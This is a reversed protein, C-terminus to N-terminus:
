VKTTMLDQTIQWANGVSVAFGERHHQALTNELSPFFMKANEALRILCSQDEFDNINPQTRDTAVSLDVPKTLRTGKAIPAM